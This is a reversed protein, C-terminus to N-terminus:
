RSRSSLPRSLHPSQHLAIAALLAFLAANGPMQLSFEVVSQLAISILGVVAGVRLCYTTGTKPHEQFRRRVERVFLGITVLIPVGVLVGGEAALQLYDNHAEQFHRAHDTTQYVMMATGYTDLGSGTLAFDRIIDRTDRWASLRHFFSKTGQAETFKSTVTDLGAWAFTGVLLLGVAGAVAFRASASSQRRLVLWGAILAGVAFAALGSRSRTMLLALGMVFCTAGVGLLAGMNPSGLLSRISGRGESDITRLLMDLWVGLAIPLAMIMWGAFHNANVFPGFPTNEYRPQWFGYIMPRLDNATLGRQVIGILALVTAMGVLWRCIRSAGVVSLLRTTGLMFLSFAILLLAGLQTKHPAISIPHPPETARAVQYAFDYHGLFADTGPSVRILTGLSLPVLQLGVAALIALLGLAIWGLRPRGRRGALLGACGVLACAAALPTYAWRYVSGFAFVGWAITLLTLAVLLSHIARPTSAQRDPVIDSTVGVTRGSLAATSQTTNM